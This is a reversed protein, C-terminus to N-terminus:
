MQSSVFYTMESFLRIAIVMHLWLDGFGRLLNRLEENEIIHVCSALLNTISVELFYQQYKIRKGTGSDITDGICISFNASLLM